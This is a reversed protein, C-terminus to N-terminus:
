RPAQFEAPRGDPPPLQSILRILDDFARKTPAGERDSYDSTFVSHQEGPLAPRHFKKADKVGDRLADLREKTSIDDGDFRVALVEIGRANLAEFGRKRDEEALGLDARRKHSKPWFPVAPQCCVIMQVGAENALAVPLSGTLCMGIVVVPQQPNQTQIERVLARLKPLARATVATRLTPWAPSFSIYLSNKFKSWGTTAPKGGFLIPAHVINGEQALREAFKLTDDTLGSIEHLLVITAKPAPASGVVIVNYGSASSIYNNVPSAHAEHTGGHRVHRLSACGAQFLILLIIWPLNASSLM